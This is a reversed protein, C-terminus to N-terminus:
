FFILYAITILILYEIVTKIRILTSKDKVKSEILLAIRAFTLHVLVISFVIGM